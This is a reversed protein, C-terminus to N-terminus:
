KSATVQPLLSTQKLAIPPMDVTTSQSGIFDTEALRVKLTVM